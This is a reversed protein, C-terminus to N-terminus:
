KEPSGAPIEKLAHTHLLKGDKGKEKRYSQAVRSLTVIREIIEAALVGELASRLIDEDVQGLDCGPELTIGDNPFSLVEKDILITKKKKTKKDRM